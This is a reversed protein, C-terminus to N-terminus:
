SAAAPICVLDGLTGSATFSLIKPVYQATWGPITELTLEIDPNNSVFGDIDQDLGMQIWASVDQKEVMHAHVVAKEVAPAASGGGSSAPESPTSAAPACAALAAGFAVSSSMALFQRRSLKSTSM